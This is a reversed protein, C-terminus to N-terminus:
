YHYKTKTAWESKPYREHLLNFAKASWKTTEADTCGYRTSRVVLHLAQPVREDNPHSQAYDLVEAALFNPAVAADALRVLERELQTQNSASLFAPAPVTPDRDPRTRGPQDKMPECWWNDRFNDIEGLTGSRLLGTRVYPSLGPNQLTVFAAAFRKEENTKASRFPEMATWLPKDLEAIAPQLQDAALMNGLVTARTWTSRALERRLPAPLTESKASEVLLAAPLKQALIQASYDNFFAKGKDQQSRETLDQEEDGDPLGDGMDFGIQAPVEAAHSLFDALSTSLRQREDNFLNRTGHSLEDQPRSLWVDLEKRATEQQRGRAILRLAYYRVSTYAPSALRVQEAAKLLETTGADTPDALDLAAVLWAASKKERWQAMAHEADQAHRADQQGSPRPAGLPHEYTRDTYFTKIWDSLDGAQEGQSVLLVYDWLHQKFDPGPDPKEMMQELEAVRKEPETRFRVYDLLRQAAAHSPELKPDRVVEELKAQAARLGDKDLKGYDATSLTAKRVMARAALYEGYGAWPSAPDKAIAEFASAAEDFRRQYFLAAAIQYNRNARLLPDSSELRAPVAQATGEQASGEQAKGECNAFVQDQAVLWDKVAASGAGYKQALADLTQAAVKFADDPCNLFVQYPQDRVVPAYVGVNEIRAVGFQERAKLWAESAPHGDAFPPPTPGMSRNWVDIADHQQAANLKMGNLSRYAVVLYSRRMTPLVIGLKGSAFEPQSTQPAGAPVFIAEDFWPGCAYIAPAALVVAAVGAIFWWRVWRTVDLKMAM